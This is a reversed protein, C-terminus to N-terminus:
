PLLFYHSWWSALRAQMVVEVLVPLASWRLARLSEVALCHLDVDITGSSRLLKWRPWFRPVRQVYERYAEGLKDALRREESPITVLLYAAAAIALGVMMTLSGLLAVTGIAMLLTGLYLPNRTISYPGEAVVAHGKRGGIYLTAWFRFAAGALFLSWGAIRFPLEVWSGPEALPASALWASAFPLMIALAITARRREAWSKRIRPAATAHEATIVYATM